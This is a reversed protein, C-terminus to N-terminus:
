FTSVWLLGLDLFIAWSGVSELHNWTTRELAYKTKYFQM